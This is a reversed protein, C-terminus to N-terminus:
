PGFKQVRSTVPQSSLLPKGFISPTLDDLFFLLQVRFGLGQRAERNLSVIAEAAVQYTKAVDSLGLNM